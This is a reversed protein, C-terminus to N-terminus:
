PRPEEEAPRNATGTFVQWWHDVVPYLNGLHELRVEMDKLDSNQRVMITDIYQGNVEATYTKDGYNALIVQKEPRDIAVLVAFDQTASADWWGVGMPIGVLLMVVTFAIFVRRLVHSGPYNWTGGMLHRAIRGPPTKDAMAKAIAPGIRRGLWAISWPVLWLGLYTAVLLLTYAILTLVVGENHMFRPFQYILGGLLIIAFISRLSASIYSTLRALGVREVEHFTIFAVWLLIAIVAFPALADRPGVRVLEQPIGFYHARGVEYSHAVIFSLPVGVVSAAPLFRLVSEPTLAKIWRGTRTELPSRGDGLLVAV